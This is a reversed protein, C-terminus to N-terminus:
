LAFSAAVGVSTWAGGLVVVPLGMDHANAGGEVVGIEFAAVLSVGPTM